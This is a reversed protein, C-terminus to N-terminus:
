FSIDLKRPSNAFARVALMNIPLAHRTLTNYFDLGFSITSPFLARQSPDKPHTWV